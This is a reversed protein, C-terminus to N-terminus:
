KVKCQKCTIVFCLQKAPGCGRIVMTEEWSDIFTVGADFAAQAAGAIETAPVDLNREAVARRFEAELRSKAYRWDIKEFVFSMSSQGSAPAQLTLVGLFAALSATFRLSRDRATISSM